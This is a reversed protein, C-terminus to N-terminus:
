SPTSGTEPMAFWRGQWRRPWGPTSRGTLTHDTSGTGPPMCTCSARTSTGSRAPGMGLREAVGPRFGNVFVDAARVLEQVLHRGEPSRLDVSLSEKGEMTKISTVEPNGFAWRMPDGRLDELKIVRAGSAAAMTVGYPM